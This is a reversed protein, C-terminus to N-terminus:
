GLLKAQLWYGFRWLATFLGPRQRALAAATQACLSRTAPHYAYREGIWLRDLRTRAARFSERDKRGDAGTGHGLLEVLTRITGMLGEQKPERALIAEAARVDGRTALVFARWHLLTAATRTRPCSSRGRSPRTARASTEPRTTPPSRTRSCGGPSIEASRGAASGACRGRSSTSATSRGGSWGSAAPPPSSCRGTSRPSSSSRGSRGHRGRRMSGRRPSRTATPPRASSAGARGSGSRAAAPSSTSRGSGRPPAALDGRRRPRRRDGRRADASPVPELLLKWAAELDAYEPEPLRLMAAFRERAATWERRAVALRVELLARASDPLAAGGTALAFAADDQRSQELALDFLSRTAFSYEPDLTIAQRFAAIAEDARNGKARLADGLYGHAIPDDPAAEAFAKAWRVAEDFRKEEFTWDSIMRLGWRHGPEAALVEAMASIAEPREGRQAKVWAARARLGPPVSGGFAAPEAAAAAEDFRKAKALVFAKWDHAEFFFPDRAIAEDLAAVCADLEEPRELLLALGYSAWARRSGEDARARAGAIAEARLEPHGDTWTRLKEWARASASDVRLALGMRRVAGERDGHAFLHEALEAHSGFDYPSQRVMRELLERAEGATAADAELLKALQRAAQGYAPALRLAERFASIAEASEGRGEACLGREFWVRPVQPFRACLEAALASAEDRRELLRHARVLAVGCSWLDPREAYLRAALAHREEKTAEPADVFRIM